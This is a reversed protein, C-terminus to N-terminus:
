RGRDAAVPNQSLSYTYRLFRGTDAKYVIALRGAEWSANTIATVPGLRVEEDRRGPQVTRAAGRDPTITVTAPTVAITLRDPPM